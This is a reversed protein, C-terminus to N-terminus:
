IHLSFLIISNIGLFMIIKLFLSIKKLGKLSNISRLKIAIYSLPIVTFIILYIATFKYILAMSIILFVLLGITLICIFSALIRVRKKGILIPLTNMNLSYDGNVDEIDKVLERILNLLFAFLTLGFILKEVLQQAGTQITRDMDMVWIVFISFAILFSVIFNGVLPMAKFKKSYYYLLISVGIFIFSFQPKEIQLSLGIGLILGVSNVWLYLQKSKEISFQKSVIVKEPKNVLDTKLDLMDNIIYGAATILLIASSLIIFQFLSLETAVEFSSFVLLKLVLQIYLILLLNQWRILKLFALIKM